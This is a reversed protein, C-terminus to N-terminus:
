GEEVPLGRLIAQFERHERRGRRIARVAWVLILAQLSFLVVGWVWESRPSHSTAGHGWLVIIQLLCQGVLVAYARAEEVGRLLWPAPLAYALPLLTAWPWPRWHPTPGSSAGSGLLALLGQLVVLLAVTQFALLFATIGFVWLGCSREQVPDARPTVRGLGRYLWRSLAPKLALWLFPALFCLVILLHVLELPFGVKRRWGGFPGMVLYVLFLGLTLLGGLATALGSKRAQFAAYDQTLAEMRDLESIM